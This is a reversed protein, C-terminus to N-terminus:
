KKADYAKQQIELFRPLGTSDLEDTYSKWAADDNVDRSGTIFEASAQAVLNDINTTLEAVEASEEQPVWVSWYPFV